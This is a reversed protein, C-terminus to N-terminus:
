NHFIRWKFFKIPKSRYEFGDCPNINQIELSKEIQKSDIFVILPEYKQISSKFCFIVFDLKESMRIREIMDKTIPPIECVKGRLGRPYIYMDPLHPFFDLEILFGFVSIEKPTNDKKYEEIKNYHECFVRNFNDIFDKYKFNEQASIFSNFYNEIIKLSKITEEEDNFLEPKKNYEKIRKSNISDNKRSLSNIGNKSEFMSLDIAFHEIGVNDGILFDPREQESIKGNIIQKIQMSIEDSNKSNIAADLCWRENEKKDM